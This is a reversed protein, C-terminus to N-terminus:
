FVVGLELTPVILHARSADPLVVFTGAVQPSIRWHLGEWEIGAVWGGTPQSVSKKIELPAFGHNTSRLRESGWVFVHTYRGGAFLSMRRLVHAHLVVPVDAAIGGFGRNLCAGGGCAVRHRARYFGDVGVGVAVGVGLTKERLVQYLAEVRGSYATPRLRVGLDLDRVVGVHAAVETLWVPSPSGDSDDTPAAFAFDDTYNRGLGQALAVRLQGPMLTGPRVAQTGGICGPAVWALAVTLCFSARRRMM